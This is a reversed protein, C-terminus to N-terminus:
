PPAPAKCARRRRPVPEVHITCILMTTLPPKRHKSLAEHGHRARAEEMRDQRPVGREYRGHLHACLGGSPSTLSESRRYNTRQQRVEYHGHAQFIDLIAEVDKLDHVRAGTTSSTNLEIRAICTFSPLGLRRQGGRRLDDRGSFIRNRRATHEMVISVRVMVINLVSKQKNESAM